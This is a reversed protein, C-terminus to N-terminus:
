AAGGKKVTRMLNVDFCAQEQRLVIPARPGTNRRPLLRYVTQLRNSPSRAGSLEALYGARLLDRIYSSALERTVAIDDTSATVSLELPSFAPLNRMATWLAQQKRGVGIRGVVPPAEGAHVIRYANRSGKAGTRPIAVLEIAGVALLNEAYRELTKRHREEFVAALVPTSFHGYEDNLAVMVRWYFAANYARNGTM